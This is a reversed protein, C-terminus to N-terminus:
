GIFRTALQMPTNLEEPIPPTNNLPWRLERTSNYCALGILNRGAGSGCNEVRCRSSDNRGEQFAPYHTARLQSISVLHPTYRYQHPKIHDLLRRIVRGCSSTDTPACSDM